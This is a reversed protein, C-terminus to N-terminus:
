DEQEDCFIKVANECTKIHAFSHSGGNEGDLTWNVEDDFWFKFEKGRKVVLYKNNMVDRTVFMANLISALQAPNKPIRILSLEHLGDDFKVGSKKLM